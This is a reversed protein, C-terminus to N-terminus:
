NNGVGKCSNLFLGRKFTNASNFQCRDGKCVVIQNQIDSEHVSIYAFIYGGMEIICALIIIRTYSTEFM